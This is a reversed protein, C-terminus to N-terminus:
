EDKSSNIKFLKMIETVVVPVFILLVCEIIHDAPLLIIGFIEQIKPVLLVVFMLLSAIALALFLIKNGGIGTKFISKKNNRIDFIHVLEAFAIVIFAMTQAIEIRATEVTLHPYKAITANIVTNSSSIGILFAALTVIGIIIGQYIIRWIMGKTFIGKSKNPQRDMVDIEAPDTALALAPLSDTVLNIWLLQVVSFVEVKNVDLGFKSCLIPLIMTAIFLVIIESMNSSLLFSIAKLINDYIRRGEEVSKVITAFNDDTLIVDAAEKSVDTGTIGMACGINATKLAPADNVGDGTMAVIEKHAQWAKVIRVKHEPSVRAYVRYNRVNNILDEDSMKELESGTIAQSEDEVIGLEKAIAVATTKHDGTIMVTTIGATKCKDIADKVEVRPPDIMGTLGIFILDNEITKMEEKSPIHDIRKYAFGLVRLADKAMEDNYIVMKKEFEETDEYKEGDVVFRNCRQLLEDLGGKTFVVYGNDDYRNITTMLKRESDFPIEEVRTMQEFKAPDFELKFGLDVLATETPDGILKNDVGIKTDNCLMGTCVLRNLDKYIEPNEERLQEIDIEDVNLIKHDICIKKVTMKNQTLTGTKDTCIVSTCGLTEVAPLKKIIANEQVMKQVGIALVITSVAALGEPIAAVALSVATMFMNLPEKGYLLGVIFIVLCIALAGIGLVKGLGDLKEQLPTKDKETNSIITAIKGVETNMGISTVIGKGRGYTVLSSSFAINKQDGIGLEETEITNSIKEVPLSEGTLASEQTKLNVSEIIRLDAPVYDGTDLVVIDGVVLDRSLVIVQKGNRIVKASHSSMKKLAELSKEAKNEQAVGIIANAIIVVMIIITDTMGEGNIKNIVGSVIAAIILVIIMFDKFQELFKVINSKRKGEKLENFGDKEQRNKVEELKLGLEINTNLEKEIENVNKNFYAM